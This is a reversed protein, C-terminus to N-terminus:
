NTGFEFNLFCSPTGSSTESINYIGNTPTPWTNLNCSTSNSGYPGGLTQVKGNRPKGDEIKIDIKYSDLGSIPFGTGGIAESQGHLWHTPYTKLLLFSNKRNLNDVVIYNSKGLKAIPSPIQGQTPNNVDGHREPNILNAFILDLWLFVPEGREYSCTVGNGWDVGTNDEIKGNNNGAGYAGNRTGAFFNSNSFGFATAEAPPIDGPLYNYKIKFTHLATKYEEIQSIQSRIEASKILDRGVLVGGVLLGIIVLVMSVEVLTFGSKRSTTMGDFTPIWAMCSVIRKRNSISVASRRYSPTYNTNGSVRALATHCALPKIALVTIKYKVVYQFETVKQWKGYNKEM